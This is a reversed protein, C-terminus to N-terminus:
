GGTARRTFCDSVEDEGIIKKRTTGCDAIVANIRDDLEQNYPM